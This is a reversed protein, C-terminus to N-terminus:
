KNKNNEAMKRRTDESLKKGKNAESIKMKHDPSIPKGKRAESVKKKSEETFPKGKNHAPKGKKSESMKLKTLNSLNWGRARKTDKKAESMKLRAQISHFTGETSFGTKTAKAKNYFKPNIAVNFKEHLKAEHIGAEVRSNFVSVIKLKYNNTNKILDQRFIIDNSSTFYKIGLDYKPEVTSTRSGYYHKFEKLSTVRYVYHYKM